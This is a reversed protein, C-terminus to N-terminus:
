SARKTPEVHEVARGVFEDMSQNVGFLDMLRDFLPVPLARTIPLLRIFPPLIVTRRDSEIACAIKSAVKDQKLIPLLFPRKTKVGEFMGTDIYYPCVVTTRVLSGMRRLEMRLSEDFGVAAHKSASYDTQKAVGVLGAASAVTVVHGEGHAIMTPLFAKTVWYLALVNVAFTREIQEPALDVLWRGSVIGANNVVVIPDGVEARVQDAIREVMARDTVDCRFGWAKGGRRARVEGVVADLRDADVDWLVLHAGRDALELSLLRGIGSAAGTVLCIRGKLKTM